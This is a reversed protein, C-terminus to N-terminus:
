GASVGPAPAPHHWAKPIRVPRWRSRSDHVGFFSRVHDRNGADAGYLVVFLLSAAIAGHFRVRQTRDLSLFLIAASLDFASEVFEYRYRYSGILMAAIAAVILVLAALEVKAARGFSRSSVVRRSHDAASIPSRPASHRTILGAFIGGIVGGLSLWLYFATLYRAPQRRALKGHCM